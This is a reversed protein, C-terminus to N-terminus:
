EGGEDSQQDQFMKDIIYDIVQHLPEDNYYTNQMIEENPVYVIEVEKKIAIKYGEGEQSVKNM